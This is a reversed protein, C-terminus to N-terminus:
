INELLNIQKEQKNGKSNRKFRKQSMRLVMIEKITRVKGINEIEKKIRKHDRYFFIM